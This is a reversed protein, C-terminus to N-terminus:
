LGTELCSSSFAIKFSSQRSSTLANCVLLHVTGSLMEGPIRLDTVGTTTEGIVSIMLEERDEPQKGELHFCAQTLGWCLPPSLVSSM